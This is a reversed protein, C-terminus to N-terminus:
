NTASTPDTCMLLNLQARITAKDLVSYGNDSTTAKDQASVNPPCMESNEIDARRAYSAQAGRNTVSIASCYIASNIADVLPVGRAINCALTGIFSDGAGVTDIAKVKRASHFTGRESSSGAQCSYAGRSGLTVVVISCGLELLKSSALVIEDNTNTPMDTLVALETENPCVIDCLSVLSKVDSSAPAPNLVSITGHLKSITLAERTAEQSIENQCLLVNSLSIVQENQTVDNATLALNAGPVIIITNQGSQTDVAISATGTGYGDKTILSSVEVGEKVLQCKYQSGYTDSGVAGLMATKLGLRSCQVAQNAGKGGFSTAFTEGFVTEGVKPLQQTYTVLDMMTSGVIVVDNNSM